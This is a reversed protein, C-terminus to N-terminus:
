RPRMSRAMGTASIAVRQGGLEGVVFRKGATVRESPEQVVKELLRQEALLAVLVLVDAVM